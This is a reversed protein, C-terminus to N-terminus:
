GSLVSEPYLFYDELFPNFVTIYVAAYMLAKRSYEEIKSCMSLLHICISLIILAGLTCEIQYTAINANLRDLLWSVLATLPRGCHNYWYFQNEEQLVIATDSSYHFRILLVHMTTSIGLVWAIWKSKIGDLEFYRM